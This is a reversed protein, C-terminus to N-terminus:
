KRTEEWGIPGEYVLLRTEGNDTLYVDRYCYTSQYDVYAEITVRWMGAAEDRAVELSLYEGLNPYEKMALGAAEVPDTVPSGVTNVFNSERINFADATYKQKAEEWDFSNVVLKETYPRIVADIQEATDKYVEIYATYVRDEDLDTQYELYCLGGDDDFRYTLQATCAMGGAITWNTQFRVMEQSVIGVGEPFTITHNSREFFSMLFDESITGRTWGARNPSLTALRIGIVPSTLEEPNERVATYGIGDYRLNTDVRPTYGPDEMKWHTIELYDDGNVWYEWESDSSVSIWHLTKRNKLAELEAYCREVAAQAEPSAADVSEMIEFESYFNHSKSNNTVSDYCHFIKGMRYLGADLKGYISTWDLYGYTASGKAVGIGQESWQPKSIEPVPEWRGDVKKELWYRDTTSVTGFGYEDQSLYVDSGMSSLRDDDVRFYIGWGDFEAQTELEEATVYGEGIADAAEAFFQSVTKEEGNLSHRYSPILYVREATPHNPQDVRISELTGEGTYACTVASMYVTKNADEWRTTFVHGTADEYEERTIYQATAPDWRFLNLWGEFQTDQTDTETWGGYQWAYHRGDLEMRGETINARGSSYYTWMTNEGQRYLRVYWSSHGKTDTGNIDYCFEKQELMTEVDVLCQDLQVAQAQQEPTLPKEESVEAIKTPSTVLCLAVFFFAVVGLLSIWFSPKRYNLITLIRQKVSVEGFAVPSAAFHVKPSSCSLLAASYSKREELEMFQVVREDCAMEIDKCLLIYAAWVVPNFWHLALALFGIMKIWHDGKDLHTREHELIHKRAQKDMGMPIYIRPKIFGLIFATDIKDCEWGGRIRVAERVQAKLKLYSVLSYIGFCLAVIAWVWLLVAPLNWEVPLTFEPQLSFDSRIEIPMLLRIGSLLWLLCIYKKPTKRLILRLLIVALIVISGHISASLLNSLFQAM